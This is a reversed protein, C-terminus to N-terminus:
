ALEEVAERFNLGKLAMVADIPNWTKYKKGPDPDCIFCCVSNGTPLKHLATPNSSGHFPCCGRDYKDLKVRGYEQIVYKIPVAKANAIKEMPLSTSTMGLNAHHAAKKLRNVEARYKRHAENACYLCFEAESDTEALVFMEMWSQHDLILEALNVM